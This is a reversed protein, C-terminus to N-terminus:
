ERRVAFGRHHYECGIRRCHRHQWKPDTSYVQTDTAGCAPCKIIRPMIIQAQATEVPLDGAINVEGGETPSLARLAELLVAKSMSSFGKVKGRALARLKLIGLNEFDMAAGREFEKIAEEVQSNWQSNEAVKSVISGDGRVNEEARKVMRRYFESAREKLQWGQLM